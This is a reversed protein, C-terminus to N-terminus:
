LRINTDSVEFVLAIKKTRSSIQYIQIVTDVQIVLVNSRVYIYKPMKLSYQFVNTSGLIRYENSADYYAITNKHVVFLFGDRLFFELVSIKELQISTIFDLQFKNSSDELTTTISLLTFIYTLKSSKYKLVLTCTKDDFYSMFDSIYSPNFLNTTLPDGSLLEKTLADISIPTM